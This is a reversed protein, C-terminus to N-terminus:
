APAGPRCVPDVGERVTCTASGWEAYHWDAFANGHDYPIWYEENPSFTHSEGVITVAFLERGLQREGSARAGPLRHRRRM